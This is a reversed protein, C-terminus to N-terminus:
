LSTIRAGFAISACAYTQRTFSQNSSCTRVANECHVPESCAVRFEQHKEDTHLLLVTQREWWYCYNLGAVTFMCRAPCAWGTSIVQQEATQLNTQIRSPGLFVALILTDQNSDSIKVWFSESLSAPTCVLRGHRQVSTTPVWVNYLYM